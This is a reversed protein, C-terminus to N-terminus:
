KVARLRRGRTGTSAWTDVPDAEPEQGRPIRLAAAPSLCRDNALMHLSAETQRRQALLPHAKINGLADEVEVNCVRLVAMIRDRLVALECYSRLQERSSRTLLGAKAQLPAFYSWYKLEAATMAEPPTCDKTSDLLSAAAGKKGPGSRSHGGSGRAGM